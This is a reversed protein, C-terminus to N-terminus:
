KVSLIPMIVYENGATSLNRRHTFFIDILVRWNDSDLM